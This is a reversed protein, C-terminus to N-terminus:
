SSNEQAAHHACRKQHNWAHNPAYHHDTESPIDTTAPRTIVGCIEGSRQAGTSIVIRNNAYLKARRRDNFVGRCTGEAGSRKPRSSLNTTPTSNRVGVITSSALAPGEAGSRKPRSSLNTTPTSNRAGVITPFAVAPREVVSREPRSSLETTSTSNARRAETPFVFKNDAYLKAYRCDNSICCCTGGSRQAETPIVFKNNAYLKARRCDNSICCCTGGSRQAETPHHLGVLRVWFNKEDLAARTM